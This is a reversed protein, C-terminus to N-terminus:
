AARRAFATLSLEAAGALPLTAHTSLAVAGGAARHEAIAALLDTLAEADLGNAPEDLLWLPAPSAVCRALALRRRQGASLLRCPWAALAALRFRQLGSAVDGGGRMGAWFALTEAVTLVPKVADQHGIFHLRARHAAPDEAIPAGNWVLHGAEPRTLGAMLRLLSSKGSGNPGTLLLAGGPPLAFDLGAFVLREGRRCALRLGAFGLPPQPSPAPM